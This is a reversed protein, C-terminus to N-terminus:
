LWYKLHFSVSETKYRETIEYSISQELVRGIFTKVWRFKTASKIQNFNFKIGFVSFIPKQAVRQTIPPSLPLTSVGDIARQFASSSKRNAM